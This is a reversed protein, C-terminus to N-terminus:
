FEVGLIAGVTNKNKGGHVLLDLNVNKTLLLQTSYKEDFNTYSFSIGRNNRHYGISYRYYREKGLTSYGAGFIVGSNEGSFKKNLDTLIFDRRRDTYVYSDNLRFQERTFDSYRKFQNSKFNLPVFIQSDFSTGEGDKRIDVLTPVAKNFVSSLHFNCDSRMADCTISGRLILSDKVAQEMNLNLTFGNQNYHNLEEQLHNYFYEGHEKNYIIQFKERSLSYKDYKQSWLFYSYHEATTNNFLFTLSTGWTTNKINSSNDLNLAFRKNVIKDINQIKQNILGCEWKFSKEKEYITSIYDNESSRDLSSYDEIYSYDTNIGFRDGSMRYVISPAVGFEKEIGKTEEIM